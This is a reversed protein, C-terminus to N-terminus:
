RAGVRTRADKEQKLEILQELWYVRHAVSQLLASCQHVDQLHRPYVGILDSVYVYSGVGDLFDGIVALRGRMPAVDSVRMLQHAVGHTLDFRTVVYDGKRITQQRTNIVLHWEQKKKTKASM